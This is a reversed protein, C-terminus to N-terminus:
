RPSGAKPQWTNGKSSRKRARSSRSWSKPSRRRARATSSSRSRPLDAGRHQADGVGDRDHQAAYFGAQTNLLAAFITFELANPVLVDLLSKADPEMEYPPANGVDEGEPAFPLLRVVRPRQTIASIFENGVLAAGDIEGAMYRKGLYEAIAAAHQYQVTGRDTWSATM